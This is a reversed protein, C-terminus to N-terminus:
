KTPINSEEEVDKYYSNRNHLKRNFIVLLGITVVCLFAHFIMNITNGPAIFFGFLLTNLIAGSVLALSHIDKWQNNRSFWGRIFLIVLIFLSLDILVPVFASIMFVSPFIEHVGFFIAGAFFAIIGVIWKPPVVRINREPLTDPPLIKMRLTLLVIGIILLLTCCILIPSASFNTFNLYMIAVVILSTVYIFGTIWMGPLRLWTDKRQKFFLLETLLIPISISWVIHLGLVYLSWVWNVGFLSGYTGLEVGPFHPNFLSQTALGEEALGYATALMLIGLWGLNWRRVTERILIAGTGYLAMDLLFIPILQLSFPIDGLLLEGLAPALLLLIFIPALRRM